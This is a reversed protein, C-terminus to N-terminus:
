KNLLRELDPLTKMLPGVKNKIESDLGILEEVADLRASIENPRALPMCLWNRLKRKGFHTTCGDIVSLLSKQGETIDLNRLTIGDLVQSHTMHKFLQQSDNCDLLGKSVMYKPGNV